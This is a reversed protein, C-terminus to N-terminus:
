GRYHSSGMHASLQKQVRDCKKNTKTPAESQNGLSLGNAIRYRRIWSKVTDLPVSTKKAIVKARLYEKPYLQLVQEREEM